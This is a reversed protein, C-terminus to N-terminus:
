RRELAIGLVHDQASARVHNEDLVINAPSLWCRPIKWSGVESKAFSVLKILACSITLSLFGLKM